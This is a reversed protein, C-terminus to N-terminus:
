DILGFLRCCKLHDDYLQSLGSNPVICSLKQPFWPGTQLPCAHARRACDKTKGDARRALVEEVPLFNLSIRAVLHSRRCEYNWIKGFFDMQFELPAAWTAGGSVRTPQPPPYGERNGVGEVNKADRQRRRQCKPEAWVKKLLFPVSLSSGKNKYIGSNM